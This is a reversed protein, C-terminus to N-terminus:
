ISSLYNISDEFNKICTDPFNKNNKETNLIDLLVFKIKKYSKIKEKKIWNLWIDIILDSIIRNIDNKYKDWLKLIKMWIVANDEQEKNGLILYLFKIDESYPYKKYLKDIKKSQKTFDIKLKKLKKSDIKLWLKKNIHFNIIENRKENLNKWIRMFESYDRKFESNKINKKWELWIYKDLISDPIKYNDKLYRIKLHDLLWKSEKKIELLYNSDKEFLTEIHWNWDFYEKM